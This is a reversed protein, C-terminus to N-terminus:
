FTTFTIAGSVRFTVDIVQLNGVPFPESFTRLIMTGTIKPNGATTGVPGLEWTPATGTTDSYFPHIIAWIAADYKYQVTIEADKFTQEYSRFGGSNFTTADVEEGNFNPTVSMTKASYDVNTSPAAISAHKWTTAAGAIAM